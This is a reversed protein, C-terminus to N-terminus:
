VYRSLLLYGTGEPYLDTELKLLDTLMNLREHRQQDPGYFTTHFDNVVGDHDTVKSLDFPENGWLVEIHMADPFDVLRDRLEKVTM